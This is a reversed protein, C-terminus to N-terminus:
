VLLGGGGGRWQLDALNDNLPRWLSHVDASPHVALDEKGVLRADDDGHEGCAEM